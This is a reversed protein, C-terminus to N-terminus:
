GHIRQIRKDFTGDEDRVEEDESDGAQKPQAKRANPDDDFSSRRVSKPFKAQALGRQEEIEAELLEVDDGFRDLKKEFTETKVSPTADTARAKVYWDIADSRLSKIYTEGLAAKPTLAKITANATKSETALVHLLAQLGNGAGKRAAEIASDALKAKRAAAVVSDKSLGKEEDDSDEESDEDDSSEDEDESDEDDSEEEDEDDEDDAAATVPSPQGLEPESGADAQDSVSGSGSGQGDGGTRDPALGDDDEDSGAALEEGHLGVQGEQGNSRGDSDEQKNTGATKGLSTVGEAPSSPDFSWRLGNEDTWNLSGDDAARVEYHLRAESVKQPEHSLPLNRAETEKLGIIPVGAGAAKVYSRFDPDKDLAAFYQAGLFVQSLEYMDVPDDFTRICKVAGKTSPDCPLPYGWSDTEDSTPDYYAGKDHGNACWWGYSGFPAQCVTCETKGLVVGVSVAWHIGFDVNQLYPQNEPTNPVYVENKLFTAGAVKKSEAGFIRGVQSSVSYNHDMMFSKGIPSFPQPLEAFAKVCKTSFQDDDRDPLDNCSLTPFVAVEDATKPSRTYANIRALQEDTPRMNEAVALEATIEPDDSSKILTAKKDTLGKMAKLRAADEELAASLTVGKPHRPERVLTKQKSM